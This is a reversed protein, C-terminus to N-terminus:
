TPAAPRKRPRTIRYADLRQLLTTRSIGLRRAAASRHGRAAVLAAIIVERDAREAPTLDLGASARTPSPDARALTADALAPSVLAATIPGGGALVLAREIVNRLERVNGPWAYARLIAVADPALAPSAGPIRGASQRALEAALAPLDELRDRLPPVKVVFTSLRYYLDARFRQAAVEASLDRHTAAVFRVDIARPQVSGVRSVERNELAHLLKPQLAPPLEGIEDLFVTGGAASELLGPKAVVAGSFAGREHGFLESELLSETLAACNVRVFPGTGRASLDHLRRALVDKGVGTEGLVLVNVPTPAVAALQGLVAQFAPSSSRVGVDVARHAFRPKVVLVLDGIQVADGPAIAAREHAALRRRNVITGNASGLDRIAFGDATVALAAHQRSVRAGDVRVDASAERGIVLEGAGALPVTSVTGRDLVALEYGIVEGDPATRTADAPKM